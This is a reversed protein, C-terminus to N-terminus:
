GFGIKEGCLHQKGGWLGWLEGIGLFIETELCTHCYINIQARAVSATKTCSLFLLTETLSFASLILAAVPSALIQSNKKDGSPFCFQIKPNSLGGWGLGTGFVGLSAGFGVRTERPPVLFM